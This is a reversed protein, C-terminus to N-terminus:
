EEIAAPEAPATSPARKRRPLPARARPPVGHPAQEAPDEGTGGAGRRGRVGGRHGPRNREGGGPTGRVREGGEVALGVPHHIERCVTGVLGREVLLLLDGGPQAREVVGVGTAVTVLVRDCSSSALDGLEAGSVAVRLPVEDEGLDADSAARDDDGVPRQDVVLGDARARLVGVAVGLLMEGIRLVNTRQADRHAEEAVAVHLGNGVRQQLGDCAPLAALGLEADAPSAIRTGTRSDGLATCMPRKPHFDSCALTSEKAASAYRFSIPTVLASRGM